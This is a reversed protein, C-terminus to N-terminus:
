RPRFAVVLDGDITRLERRHTGLGPQGIEPFDPDGVRGVRAADLQFRELVVHDLESVAADEVLVHGILDEVVENGRTLRSPHGHDAIERHPAPDLRNDRRRVCAIANRIGRSASSSRCANAGFSMGDTTASYTSAAASAPRRSTRRIWPRPRPTWRPM